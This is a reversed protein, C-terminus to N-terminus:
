KKGEKKGDKVGKKKRIEEIAKMVKEDKYVNATVVSKANGYDTFIHKIKVLEKKAKAVDAIKELLEEGKPTRNGTHEVEIVLQERKLLPHNIKNIIKM